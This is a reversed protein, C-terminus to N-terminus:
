RARRSPRRSCLPPGSCPKWCLRRTVPQARFEVGSERPRSGPVDHAAVRRLLYTGCHVPFLADFEHLIKKTADDVLLGGVQEDGGAKRRRDLDVAFHSRLRLAGQGALLGRHQHTGDHVIALGLFEVGGLFAIERDRRGADAAEAHVGEHLLAVGAAHDAQDIRLDGREFLEIQRRDELLDHQRLATEHDQDAPRAGAFRRREGRHDAVAVLLRATVNDRDFIGHLVHVLVLAAHDRMALDSYPM